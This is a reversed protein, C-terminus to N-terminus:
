SSISPCLPMLIISILDLGPINKGSLKKTWTESFLHIGIHFKGLYHFLSVGNLQKILLYKSKNWGNTKPIYYIFIVCKQDLGWSTGLCTLDSLGTMYDCILVSGHPSGNLLLNCIRFWIFLLLPSRDELLPLFAERGKFFHERALNTTFRDTALSKIEVECSMVLYAISQDLHVHIWLCIYLYCISGSSVAPVWFTPEIEHSQGWWLKENPM